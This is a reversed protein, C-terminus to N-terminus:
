LESKLLINNKIIDMFMDKLQQHDIHKIIHILMQKLETHSM